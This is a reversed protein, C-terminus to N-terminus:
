LKRIGLITLDDYQEDEKLHSFYVYEPLSPHAIPERFLSDYQEFHERLFEAIKKDVMIRDAPGANPAPYLRFIREVSVLALVADEMTGSCTGFDFSLTEGAALHTKELSYRGRAFVTNIVEHIREIGFEENDAGVLHTGHSDGENMGPESCTVINSAADRFHRKAEEMGDTFLILSDGALLKHPIQKFGSQMEVLMSPFVGAAPAEPLTKEIMMGKRSDYIHVFKYGANCFYCAGTDVNLLVVLLAAFRGKFGREEVLDNIRYVLEELHLGKESLKWNRFYDSFITAVEVMILSAPVGKGAVDCEIIAYHKDDLKRFDFYDGSVGKAGEYYGFFEAKSSVDRATTLKRNTSPDQELPTFMKQTDKGLTLDKNAAAAAVLGQTMQNVTNALLSLEDRTGTNIVHDKLKEKDETDRIIEVGQVLRRIPNVTIYALMLAGLVGLGLAIAAVIAATIFLTRQSDAMEKLIPKTTVGLRILGRFYLNDQNSRYVIPKYFTYETNSRNLHQADYIPVSGIVDGIQFLKANVQKSIANIEQQYQSLQAASQQDGRAALAAAQAGLKRLEDSLSGVQQRAETDIKQELAPVLPSIDDKIRSVGPNLANAGIKSEINPDDSAWVYDYNKTDNAGYGTVTVFQAEQMAVRLDPLAGLELINQDPLYTRAGTALSDLLVQAKQKLGDALNQQQTTVMFYGLPVSVMGVVVFVLLTILLVFKARLGMGIRKMNALREKREPLSIRTGTILAHIERRLERSEQVVKGIRAISFILMFALFCLVAIIVITNVSVLYRPRSMSLWVPAPRVSFDGFKVTGSPELTLLPRTFYLGRTPHVVGVRYTGQDVEGITPGDIIRDSVVKYLGSSLTFTYDYPKKGDRDLIVEQIDGGVAFGRGYIRLTVQGLANKNPQVDTIYTVPVYKDLRLYLTTTPGVNGVSDVAAVTLAWIGNDENNLSYSTKTTLVRNPPKKVSFSAQTEKTGPPALYQFDYTYGAVDKAAPPEWNVTYTNSPLYGDANTPPEKFVIPGPPTTDRYVSITTTPSWNGAFDETSVHIYWEGDKDITTEARRDNPLVNSEHPAQAKPNQNVSYAFGAIGSPDPPANWGFTYSNQRSRGGAPFNVAYVQPAAVSHDQRLFVLRSSNAAQNYWLVYMNGGDVVPRGFISSGPMQSLDTSQWFAGNFTGMYINDEGSSNDFWFVYDQNRYDVVRPDRSVSSGNTVREPDGSQDGNLNLQMYYIQPPGNQYSREWVLSLHGGAGTIDPRENSFLAPNANPGPNTDKFGTLLKAASWTTGGDDSTKLYLEYVAPTGTKLVQFVVYERGRYQLFNPSFNLELEQQSVLARFPSWVTGDSSISYMISLANMGASIQAGQATFLILGGGSRVFLRPAVTTREGNLESLQSFSSGTDSSEYIAIRTSSTLVAVFIKGKSDVALSFVPVETGSFPFPGLFRRSTAWSKGDTSTTISLSVTKEGGVSTGFEEWVTAIVGGASRTEPFTVGGPILVEPNDWYIQQAFLAEGGASLLLIIFIL